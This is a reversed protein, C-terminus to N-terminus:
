SGLAVDGLVTRAGGVAVTSWSAAEVRGNHERLLAARVAARTGGPPIEEARQIMDQEVMQEIGPSTELLHFLSGEPDVDHYRLDLERLEVASWSFGKRERWEDIWKWKIVWDLTRALELPEAALKDLVAVWRAFVSRYSVAGAPSQALHREAAEAFAHQMEVASWQRGDALRVRHRCTPDHSIEIIAAVPDELTLDPLPIEEELLALLLQLTGVKLYTSVQARNADGSIVHLRRFRRADAHPEDRTNVIPRRSMTQLGLVTEFFDARQSIQFSAPARGNESGVKGAGCFVIRSVLFPILHAHLRETRHRFLGEYTAASVLYNEHCGYSHGQGDSNNKFLRVSQNLPLFQNLHRRCRELLQEGAKDSAVVALADACEPTSYEPHGHDIYLRAGNGLLFGPHSGDAGVGPKEGVAPGPCPCAPEGPERADRGPLEGACDWAYRPALPCRALLALAADEQRLRESDAVWLGYETELGCIPPVSMNLEGHYSRDATGLPPGFPAVM